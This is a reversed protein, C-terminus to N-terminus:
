LPRHDIKSLNVRNILLVETGKTTVGFKTGSIEHRVINEKDGKNCTTVKTAM